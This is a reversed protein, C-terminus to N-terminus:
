SLFARQRPEPDEFYQQITQYIKDTSAKRGEKLHLNFWNVLTLPLLHSVDAATLQLRQAYSRVLTPALKVLTPDWTAPTPGTDRLLSYLLTLVDYFPLDIAGFSEWDVIHFRSKHSLINGSYVDGHQPIVPLANLWDASVAAALQSCGAKVAASSGFQTVAEIPEGVMRRYRDSDPKDHPRGVAAHVSAVIEVLHSLVDPSCCQVTSPATGRVGEMWLGWLPGQPGFHLPSPVVAPACEHARRLNEFEVKLPAPHDCFKLMVRPFMGGNHFWMVNLNSIHPHYNNHIIFSWEGGVPLRWEAIRDLLFSKWVAVM